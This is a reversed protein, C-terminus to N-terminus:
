LKLIPPQGYIVYINRLMHINYQLSSLSRVLGDWFFFSLFFMFCSALIQLAGKVATLSWTNRTKTRVATGETTIYCISPGRELQCPPHDTFNLYLIEASDLHPINQFIRGGLAIGLVSPPPNKLIDPILPCKRLMLHFPSRVIEGRPLLNGSVSGQACQPKCDVRM